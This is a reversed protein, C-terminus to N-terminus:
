DDFPPLLNAWHKFDKTIENSTFVLVMEKEKDGRRRVRLHLHLGDEDRHSFERATGYGMITEVGLLIYENLNRLSDGVYLKREDRVLMWETEPDKLEEAHLNCLLVDSPLRAWGQEPQDKTIDRVAYASSGCGVVMCEPAAV